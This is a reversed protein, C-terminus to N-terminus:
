SLCKNEYNDIRIEMEKIAADAPFNYSIREIKDAMCSIGIKEGIDECLKRIYTGGSVKAVMPLRTATIKHPNNKVM